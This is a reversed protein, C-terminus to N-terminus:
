TSAGPEQATKTEPKSYKRNISKIVKVLLFVILATGLIGILIALADSGSCSASCALAMVGFLLFIALIVALIIMAVKEGSSAKKFHQSLRMMGTALKRKWKNFFSVKGTKQSAPPTVRAPSTSVSAAAPLGFPSNAVEQHNALSLVLLFSLTALLGDCIKQTRYAQRFAKRNERSPYISCVALFGVVWFCILPAPISIAAQYLLNGATWAILILALHIFVLLIRAAWLHRSAWLSIKRM